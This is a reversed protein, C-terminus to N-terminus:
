DERGCKRIKLVTKDNYSKGRQAEIRRLVYDEAKTIM